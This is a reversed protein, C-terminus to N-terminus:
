TKDKRIPIDVDEMGHNVICTHVEKIAVHTDGNADTCLCMVKDAVDDSLEEEIVRRAMNLCGCHPKEPVSHDYACTEEIEIYAIILM